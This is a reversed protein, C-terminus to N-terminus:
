DGVSMYAESLVASRIESQIKTLVAKSRGRGLIDTLKEHEGLLELLANLDAETWGGSAKMLAEIDIRGTM